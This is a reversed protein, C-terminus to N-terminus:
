VGTKKYCTAGSSADGHGRNVRVNERDTGVVNNFEGFRDSDTPARNVHLRCRETPFAV